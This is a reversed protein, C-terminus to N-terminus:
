SLTTPLQHEYYFARQVGGLYRKLTLPRDHLRPLLVPGIRFYYDIVERKTFGTAPYLVKDLNSLRLQRGDIRVTSRTIM